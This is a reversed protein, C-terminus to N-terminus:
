DGDEEGGGTDGEDDDDAGDDGCGIASPMNHDAVAAEGPLGGDGDEGDDGGGDGGDGAEGDDSGSGDGEGASGDDSGGGEGGDGNAAPGGDCEAGTAPDIGDECEHDGEGGDDGECSDGGDGEDDVCVAGTSPDIGDECEGDGGGDGSEGDGASGDGGGGAPTPGYHYTHGTPDGVYRVAGLDFPSGGGRVDFSVEITGTSRPFVLGVPGPRSVFDINTQVGVPITLSFAGGAGVVAEAVVEGARLARVRSVGNPFTAVQANGTVVQPAGQSACASALAVALLSLNRLSATSM